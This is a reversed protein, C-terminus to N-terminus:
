SKGAIEISHRSQLSDLVIPLPAAQGRASSIIMCTLRLCRTLVLNGPCTAEGAWPEEQSVAEAHHGIGLAWNHTPIHESESGRLGAM